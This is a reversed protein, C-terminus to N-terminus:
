ICNIKKAPVGGVTIGEEIFSKNVLAGAAITIDDGIKIDGIVIAGIGILVNNGIKPIGGEAKNNGICVNGVIRCNEGIKAKSNVVVSGSHFIKLGKGICNEKIEIGLLQGLKNLKRKYYFYLIISIKSKKNCFYEANRLVKQYRWIMYAQSNILKSSLYKLKSDLGYLKKEYKLYDKLDKKTLIM